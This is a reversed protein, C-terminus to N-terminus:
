QEEPTLKPEETEDGPRKDKEGEEEAQAKSNIWRTVAARFKKADEKLEIKDGKLVGIEQTGRFLRGKDDLMYLEPKEEDSM